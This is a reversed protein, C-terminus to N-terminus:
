CVKGIEGIGEKYRCWLRFGTKDSDDITTIIGASHPCDTLRLWISFAGGAAGCTEQRTMCAEIHIGLDISQNLSRDISM